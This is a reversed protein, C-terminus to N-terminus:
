NQNILNSILLYVIFLIVLFLGLYFLRNDKTFIEQHIGQHSIETGVDFITDKTNTLIQGLNQHLPNTDNSHKEIDINKVTVENYPELTPLPMTFRINQYKTFQDPLCDFIHKSHKM